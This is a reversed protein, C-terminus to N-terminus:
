HLLLAKLVAQLVSNVQVHPERNGQWVSHKGRSEGFREQRKLESQHSLGIKLGAKIRRNLLYHEGSFVLSWRKCAENPINESLKSPM